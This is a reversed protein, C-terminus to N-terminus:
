AKCNQKHPVLVVSCISEACMGSQTSSPELDVFLDVFYVAKCCGWHNIFYWGFTCRFLQRARTLAESTEDNKMCRNRPIVTMSEEVVSGCGSFGAVLAGRHRLTPDLCQRSVTRVVFGAVTCNSGSPQHRPPADSKHSTRKVKHSTALCPNFSHPSHASLSLSAELRLWSEKGGPWAQCVLVLILVCLSFHFM